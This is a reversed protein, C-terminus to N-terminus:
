RPSRSGVCWTVAHQELFATRGRPAHRGFASLSGVQSKSADSIAAARSRGWRAGSTESSANSANLRRAGAGNRLHIQTTAAIRAIRTLQTRNEEQCVSVVTAYWHVAASDLVQAAKVRKLVNRLSLSLSLSLGYRRRSPHQLRRRSPRQLRRNRPGCGGAASSGASRGRGNRRIRGGSGATALAGRRAAFSRASRGNWSRRPPLSASSGACSPPASPASPAPRPLLRRRRRRSSPCLAPASSSRGLRQSECAQSRSTVASCCNFTVYVLILNRAKAPLFSPYLSLSAPLVVKIRSKM